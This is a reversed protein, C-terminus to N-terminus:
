RRGGRVAFTGHPWISARPRGSNTNHRCPSGSNFVAPAPGTGATTQSGGEPKAPRLLAELRERTAPGLRQAIEAHFRDDYGRITARVIRDIRDPTPHDVCLARCRGELLQTLSDSNAGVATIQEQLWEALAEGDVVTAERFGFLDRIEARHREVSRGSLSPSRDATHELGLQAVIDRIMARDIETPDGLSAAANV